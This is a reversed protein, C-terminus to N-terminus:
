PEGHIDAVQVPRGLKKAQECAVAIRLAAFADDASCPSPLNHRLAQMFHQMELEFANGFRDFFGHYPNKGLTPADTELSQLPTRWDLGAALTHLSGFVEARFDYGRPNHRTGSLMIPTGDQMTLMVTATDADGAEAYQQWKRVATTVYVEKVEQGTLWRIIDFDHILLDRFIGGSSVIFRAEAPEHDHSNLRIHYVTGVTGDAIATGLAVFGPDFRRQFSVQLFGNVSRVKKAIAQTAELTMALPKESLTPLGREVCRMVQVAHQDTSSSVVAANLRPLELIENILGGRGGIESALNEARTRDHSGIFITKVDPHAALWKARFRALRGTGLVAINM